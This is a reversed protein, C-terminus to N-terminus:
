KKKVRSPFSERRAVPSSSLIMKGPHNGSPFPFSQIGCLCQLMTNNAQTTRQHRKDINKASNLIMFRYKWWWDYISIKEKDFKMDSLVQFCIWLKVSKSNTKKRPSFSSSVSEWLMRRNSNIKKWITRSDIIKLFTKSKLNPTAFALGGFFDTDLQTGFARLFM